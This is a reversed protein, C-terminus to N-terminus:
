DGNRAGVNLRFLFENLIDRKWAELVFDFSENSEEDFLFYRFARLGKYHGVLKNLENASGRDLEFHIPKHSDFLPSSKEDRIRVYTGPLSKEIIM